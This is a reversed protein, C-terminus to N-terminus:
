LAGVPALPFKSHWAGDGDGGQPYLWKNQVRHALLDCKKIHFIVYHLHIVRAFAAVVKLCLNIRLVDWPRWLLVMELQWMFLTIYHSSLLHYCLNLYFYHCLLCRQGTLKNLLLYTWGMLSTYCKSSVPVKIQEGYLTLDLPCPAGWHPHYDM